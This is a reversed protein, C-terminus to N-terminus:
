SNFLILILRDCLFVNEELLRMFDFCEIFKFSIGIFFLLNKICSNMKFYLYGFDRIFFNYKCGLKIIKYNNNKKKFCIM